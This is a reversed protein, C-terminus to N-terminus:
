KISPRVGARAAMHCVWEPRTTEFVQEMLEADCIDGVFVSVRKDGYKQRLLALNTEKIRVDYYDNMNDVIVVDDGRELLFEAVHSGIFGAGGTVLVKKYGVHPEVLEDEWSTTSVSAISSTESVTNPATSANESAEAQSAKFFENNTFM